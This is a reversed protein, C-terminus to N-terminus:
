IDDRGEGEEEKTAPVVREECVDKMGIAKANGKVGRENTTM